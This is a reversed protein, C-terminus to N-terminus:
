LLITTHTLLLLILVITSCIVATLPVFVFCCYYYNRISKIQCTHIYINRTASLQVNNTSVNLTAGDFFFFVSCQHKYLNSRAFYTVSSPKMILRLNNRPFKENANTSSFYTTIEFPECWLQSTLLSFAHAIIAPPLKLNHTHTRTFQLDSLHCVYCPFIFCSLTPSKHLYQRSLTKSNRPIYKCELFLM